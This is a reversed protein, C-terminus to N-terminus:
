ASWGSWNRVDVALVPGDPRHERYLAYRAALAQVAEVGEPEDATLVRAAGDARAWWLAAWDDDVYHDSLLSVRPDARVNALRRL